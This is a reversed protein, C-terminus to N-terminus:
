WEFRAVVGRGSSAPVVAMSPARKPRTWAYYVLWAIGIAGSTVTAPMLWRARARAGCAAEFKSQLDAASFTVEGCDDEGVQLRDPTVTTNSVDANAFASVQRYGIALAVFGAASLTVGGIGLGLALKNSTAQPTAVPEPAPPHAARLAAARERAFTASEARGQKEFVRVAGDYLALAYQWNGAHEECEALNLATGAARELEYSREFSRCAEVLEGREKHVRGQEFLAAADDGDAEARAGALSCALAVAWNM